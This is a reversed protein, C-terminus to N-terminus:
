LLKSDHKFGGPIVPLLKFTKQSWFVFPGENLAHNASLERLLLTVLSSVMDIKYAVWALNNFVREM